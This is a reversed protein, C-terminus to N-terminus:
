PDGSHYHDNVASQRQQGGAKREAKM